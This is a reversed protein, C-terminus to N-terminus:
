FTEKMQNNTRKSNTFCTLRSCIALLWSAPSLSNWANVVFELISPLSYVICSDQHSSTNNLGHCRCPKFFSIRTRRDPTLGIIKRNSTRIRNVASHLFSTPALFRLSIKKEKRKQEKKRKKRANEKNEERYERKTSKGLSEKETRGYESQLPSLKFPSWHEILISFQDFIRKRKLPRDQFM